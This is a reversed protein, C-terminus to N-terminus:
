WTFHFANACAEDFVVLPVALLQLAHILVRFTAPLIDDQKQSGGLTRPFRHKRMLTGPSFILAPSPDMAPKPVDHAVKSRCHELLSGAASGARLNSLVSPLARPPKM